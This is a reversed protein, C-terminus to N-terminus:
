KIVCFLVFFDLLNAVRTALAKKTTMKKSNQNFLAIKSLMPLIKEVSYNQV